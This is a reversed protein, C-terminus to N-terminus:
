EIVKDARALLTPPVDLGLAKATKLNILLEFRTPQQVPLDAPKAGKLIKDVYVAALRVMNGVNPGYSILAGAQVWTGWGGALPLRTKTAFDVIRTVSAVMHRSSVAYIADIGAQTAAAFASDLDGPGRMEVLNLQIGFAMAARRAVPLENDGHDPNWLFGVRSVSPVAEKLVELRKAALEDSLFTVGTANGGPKALSDAVGVQVPDASMAYVIPITQTARVVFPTVDGGLAFIMDPRTRVLEAALDRLRESKGEAFRYEIGINEGDIYGLDRLGRLFSQANPDREPTSYILIGLRPRRTPQQARAALPWATAAGGLTFVFERRRIHNAM